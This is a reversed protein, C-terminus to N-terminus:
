CSEVMKEGILAVDVKEQIHDNQIKDRITYDCMWRLTKMEEVGMKHEHQGKFAFM